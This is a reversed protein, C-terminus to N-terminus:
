NGNPRAARKADKPWSRISAIRRASLSRGSDLEARWKVPGQRDTQSQAGSHSVSGPTQSKRKQRKHESRRAHRASSTMPDVQSSIAKRVVAMPPLHLDSDGVGNRYPRMSRMAKLEGRGAIAHVANLVATDSDVGSNRGFACSLRCSLSLRSSASM